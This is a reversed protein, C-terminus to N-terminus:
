EGVPNWGIERVLEGVTIYPCKLKEAKAGFITEMPQSEFEQPVGMFVRLREKDALVKRLVASKEQYREKKIEKGLELIDNKLNWHRGEEVREKAYSEIWQLLEHDRDLEHLLGDVAESLVQDSDLEISYGATLGIERTFIRIVRQYFRDITEIHFHSYNVM